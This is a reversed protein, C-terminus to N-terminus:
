QNQGNQRKYRNLSYSQAENAADSGPAYVM